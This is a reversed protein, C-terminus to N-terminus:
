GSVLKGPRGAQDRLLEVWANAVVSPAHRQLQAEIDSSPPRVGAVVEALAHDLAARLAVPDETPVIRGLRGHRLLDRVGGGANTAVVLCGSSLAEVLVLPVAELRSPLVLVDIQSLLAQPDDVWGMFEVDCLGLVAARLRLDPEAPGSGAIVARVGSPLPGVALADILVDVGKEWALRGVCGIVLDTRGQTRKRAGVADFNLPNEIQHVAGTLSSFAAAHSETLAIVFPASSLVRRGIRSLFWLRAVVM